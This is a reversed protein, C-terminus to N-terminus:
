ILLGECYILIKLSEVIEIIFIPRREEFTDTLMDGTPLGITLEKCAIKEDMDM